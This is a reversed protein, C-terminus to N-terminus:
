KLHRSKKRLRNKGIRITLKRMQETRHRIARAEGKRDLAHHAHRVKSEIMLSVGRRSLTIRGRGPARNKKAWAPIGRAGGLQEAASAFASKAFGSLATMRKIYATRDSKSGPTLVIVAFQRTNSTCADAM